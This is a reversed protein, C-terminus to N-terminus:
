QFIICIKQTVTPKNWKILFYSLFYLSLALMTKVVMALMIYKLWHGNTINMACISARDFHIYNVVFFITSRSGTEFSMPRISCTETYRITLMKSFHSVTINFGWRRDASKSLGLVIWRSCRLTDPITPVIWIYSGSCTRRMLFSSSVKDTLQHLGGGRRCWIPNRCTFLTVYFKLGINWSLM